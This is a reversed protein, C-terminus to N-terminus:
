RLREPCIDRINQNIYTALGIGKRALSVMREVARKGCSAISYLYTAGGSFRITIGKDDVIYAEIGSNGNRNRYREM